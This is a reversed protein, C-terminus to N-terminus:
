SAGLFVPLLGGLAGAAMLLVGQSLQGFPVQRAGAPPAFQFFGAGLAPSWDLTVDTTVPASGASRTVIQVRSVRGTREYTPNLTVEVDRQGQLYVTARTPRPGAGYALEVTVDRRGPRDVVIRRPLHTTRDIWYSTAAPRDDLRWTAAGDVTEEGGLALGAYGSELRARMAAVEADIRAAEGAMRALEGGPRTAYQDLAPVHLALREPTAWLTLPGVGGAADLRWRPSGRDVVLNATVGQSGAGRLNIAARVQRAEDYRGLAWGQRVADLARTAIEIARGDPSQARGGAPSLPLAGLAMAVLIAVRTASRHPM